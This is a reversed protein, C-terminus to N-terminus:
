LISHLGTHPLCLVQPFECFYASVGLCIGWAFVGVVKKYKMPTPVLGVGVLDNEYPTPVLGVGVLDNEYPTPVLGASIWLFVRDFVGLLVRELTM